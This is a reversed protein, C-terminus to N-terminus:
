GSATVNGSIQWLLDAGHRNHGPRRPRSHPCGLQTGHRSVHIRAASRRHRRRHHRDSGSKLPVIWVSRQGGTPQLDLRAPHTERPRRRPEDSLRALGVGRRFSRPDLYAGVCDPDMQCKRDSSPFQGLGATKGTLRALIPQTILLQFTEAVAGAVIGFILTVQWNRYRVFGIDRWKVRRVRMSIWGLLLLFPTKSFPIHHRWDLFFILGVIGFELAALLRGERWSPAPHAVQPQPNFSAASDAKTSSDM